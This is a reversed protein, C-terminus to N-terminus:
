INRVAEQVAEFLQRTEDASIAAPTPLNAVIQLLTDKIIKLDSSTVLKSLMNVTVEGAPTPDLLNYLKAVTQARESGEASTFDDQTLNRLGLSVFIAKHLVAIQNSDTLPNIAMVRDERVSEPRFAGINDKAILYVRARDSQNSSVNFSVELDIGGNKIAQVLGSIQAENIASGMISRDIILEVKQVKLGPLIKTLANYYNADEELEARLESIPVPSVPLQLSLVAPVVIKEMEPPSQALEENPAAPAEQIARLKETLAKDADGFIERQLIRLLYHPNEQWGAAWQEERIFELTADSLAVTDIVNGQKDSVVVSNDNKLGLKMEGSKILYEYVEHFIAIPDNLISNHVAIINQAPLAFGFLDEVLTSYTYFRPSNKELIDLAGLITKKRAPDLIDKEIQARVSNFDIPGREEIVFSRPKGDQVAVTVVNDDISEVRAKKGMQAAVDNAAAWYPALGAQAFKDGQGEQPILESRKSDNRKILRVRVIKVGNAGGNIKAGIAYIHSFDNFEDVNRDAKNSPDYRVPQNPVITRLYSYVNKWSPNKFYLQAQKGGGGKFTIELDYGRLDVGTREGSAPAVGDLGYSVDLYFEEGGQVTFQSPDIEIAGVGQIKPQTVETKNPKPAVAPKPPVVAPKVQQSTTAQPLSRISTGFGKTTFGDQDWFLIGSYGKDHAEKIARDVEQPTKAGYEGIIVTMNGVGLEGANPLDGGYCHIQGVDIFDRYKALDKPKAAGITSKGGAKDIEAGVARLFNLINPNFALNTGAEPATNEPENMIDIDEFQGAFQQIVSRLTEIFKPLGDSTFFEPHEGVPTGREVRIGNLLHFDFLSPMVKVGLERQADVVAQIDTYVQPKFVRKGNIVETISDWNRLDMFLWVRAAGGGEAKVKALANYIRTKGNPMIQSYGNESGVALGYPTEEGWNLNRGSHAVFVNTPVPSATVNPLPAPTTVLSSTLSPILEVKLVRVKGEFKYDDPANGGTGLKVGLGVINTPDFGPVVWNPATGKVNVEVTMKGPSDINTWGGYWGAWDTGSKLFIQVGNPANAAGPLGSPIDLTVRVKYNSLDVGSGRSYGPLGYDNYRLDVFAEGKTREGMELIESLRKSPSPMAEVKANLAAVLENIGQYDDPNFGSIPNKNLYDTLQRRFNLESYLRVDMVIQSKDAIAQEVGRSDVWDQAKWGADTPITIAQGAEQTAGPVLKDAVGPPPISQRAPLESSKGCASLSFSALAILLPTTLVKSSGGLISKPGTPKASPAGKSKDVLDGMGTILGQVTGSGETTEPRLM